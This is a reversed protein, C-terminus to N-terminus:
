FCSSKGGGEEITAKSFVAGSRMIEEPERLYWRFEFSNEEDQIVDLWRTQSDFKVPVTAEAEAMKRLDKRMPDCVEAGIAGRGLKGGSTSFEYEISEEGFKLWASASGYQEVEKILLGLLERSITSIEIHERAAPNLSKPQRNRNHSELAKLAEEIESWLALKLTLGQISEPLSQVREPDVCALERSSAQRKIPVAGATKFHEICQDSYATESDILIESVCSLSLKESIKELLEHPGRELQKATTELVERWDLGQLSLKQIDTLALMNFLAKISSPFRKERKGFLSRLFKM